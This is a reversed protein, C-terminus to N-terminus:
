TTLICIRFKPKPIKTMKSLIKKPKFASRPSHGQNTTPTFCSHEILDSFWFREGKWGAGLEYEIKNEEVIQWEEDNEKDLMGYKIKKEEFLKKVCADYGLNLQHSDDEDGDGDYDDGDDGDYDYDDDDDDHM